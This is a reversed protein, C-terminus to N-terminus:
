FQMAELQQAGAESYPEWREIVASTPACTGCRCPESEMWLIDADVIDVRQNWNSLSRAVSRAEELTKPESDHLSNTNRFRIKYRM